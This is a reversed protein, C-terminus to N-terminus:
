CGGVGGVGYCRGVTGQGMCGVVKRKGWLM